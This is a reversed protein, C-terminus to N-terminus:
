SFTILRTTRSQAIYLEVCVFLYFVSVIVCCSSTSAHIINPLNTLLFAVLATASCFLSSKVLCFSFFLFSFCCLWFKRLRKRWMFQGKSKKCCCLSVSRCPCSSLPPCLHGYPNGDLAGAQRGARSCCNRLFSCWFAGGGGGGGGFGVELCPVLRCTLSYYIYKRASGRVAIM